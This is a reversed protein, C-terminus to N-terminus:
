GHKKTQLMGSTWSLGALGQSGAKSCVSVACLRGDPMGYASGSGNVTGDCSIDALAGGPPRAGYSRAARLAAGGRAPWTM